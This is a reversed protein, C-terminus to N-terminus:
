ARHLTAAKPTRSASASRVLAPEVSDTRPKSPSATSAATARAAAPRNGAREARLLVTGGQIVADPATDGDGLGNIPEDQTVDMITITIENNEPDTVGMISVAILKHNPPWLKVPSAEAVAQDDGALAVPPHNVNTVTVNVADPESTNTGDSVVLQFTLVAGGMPVLPAILTPLTPDTLDLLM